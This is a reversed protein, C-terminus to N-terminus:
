FASVRNIRTKANQFQERNTDGHEAMEQSEFIEVRGIQLRQNLTCYLQFGNPTLSAFTRFDHQVSSKRQHEVFTRSSGANRKLGCNILEPAVAYEQCRTIGLQRAALWNCICRADQGAHNVQNNNARTWVVIYLGIRFIGRHRDDVAKTVGIMWALQQGIHLGKTLKAATNGTFFDSPDAIAVIYTM